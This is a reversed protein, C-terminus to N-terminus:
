KLFKSTVIPKIKSTNLTVKLALRIKGIGTEPKNKSAPDGYPEFFANNIIISDFTSAYIGMISKRRLNTSYINFKSGDNKMIVFFDDKNKAWHVRILRLFVNKETPTEFNFSARPTRGTKTDIGKDGVFGAYENGYEKRLHDIYKEFTEYGKLEKIILDIYTNSKGRQVVEDFISLTTYDSTSKIEAQQNIGDNSFKIDPERTHNGAISIIPINFNELIAAFNNQADSGSKIRIESM